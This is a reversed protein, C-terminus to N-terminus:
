AESQVVIPLASSVVAPLGSITTIGSMESLPSPPPQHVFQGLPLYRQSVNWM